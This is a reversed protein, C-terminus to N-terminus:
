TFIGKKIYFCNKMSIKITPLSKLNKLYAIKTTHAIKQPMVDLWDGIEKYM